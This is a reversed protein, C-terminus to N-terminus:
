NQGDHSQNQPYKSLYYIIFDFSQQHDSLPSFTVTFFKFLKNWQKQQQKSDSYLVEDM